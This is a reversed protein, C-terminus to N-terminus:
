SVAEVHLDVQAVGKAALDKALPAAGIGVTTLKIRYDSYKKRVLDILAFLTEPAALPDGPGCINVGRIEKGGKVLMAIWTMAEDPLLAPDPKEPEGFRIKSNAQLAAPLLLSDIPMSRECPNKRTVPQITM